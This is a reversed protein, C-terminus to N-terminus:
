PAVNVMMCSADTVGGVQLGSVYAKEQSLGKAGHTGPGQAVCDGAAFVNPVSSCIPPLAAESGPSFVTTAGRFRLVSADLVATLPQGGGSSGGNSGGGSTAGLAAPLYSGLLRRIVDDDSLPLLAEAHYIDVEVVSGPESAYQDQPPPPCAPRYVRTRQSYHQM